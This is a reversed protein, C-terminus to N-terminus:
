ATQLTVEVNLATAAEQLASAIPPRYWRDLAFANPVILTLARKTQDENAPTGSETAATQPRAPAIWAAYTAPSLREKLAAALPTWLPHDPSV